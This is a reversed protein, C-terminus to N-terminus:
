ISQNPANYNILPKLIQDIQTDSLFPFSANIIGRATEVPYLKGTVNAIIENLSSIQAGNLATAAVNVEPAEQSVQEDVDLINIKEGILKSFEEEMILRDYETIDNYFKKADEIESSTGLKGPMNMSLLVIPQNLTRIINEQVSRETYEWKKDYDQISFPEVSFDGDTDTLEVLMINGLNDNGQFEELSEIFASREQDSEFRGKYKVMQSALFNTKVNKLKGIKIESDTQIDEIIADFPSLPYTESNDSSYWLIQGNYNEIKEQITAGQTEEIQKLVKAPAFRNYRVIKSVDYKGNDKIKRKDWNDYVAIMGDPDYSLRCWEFPVHSYGIKEGLANYSVHVAFGGFLCYDEICARLLKDFTTGSKNVIKKYLTPNSIGNGMVYKSYLKYSAKATGSSNVLDFIRQPYSNDYDYAYVKEQKLDKVIARQRANATVIKAM